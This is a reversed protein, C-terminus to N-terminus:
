KVVRALHTMVDHLCWHGPYRWTKGECNIVYSAEIGGKYTIVIQGRKWWMSPSRKRSPRAGAARQGTGQPHGTLKVKRWGWNTSPSSINSVDISTM